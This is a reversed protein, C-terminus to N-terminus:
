EDMLISKPFGYQFGVVYETRGLMNSRLSVSVLVRRGKVRM